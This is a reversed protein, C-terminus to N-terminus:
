ANIEKEKDEVMKRGLDETKKLMKDFEENLVKVDDKAMIKELKKLVQLAEHRADRVHKKFHEHAEKTKKLAAQQHEKRSTGLKVKIDKGEM